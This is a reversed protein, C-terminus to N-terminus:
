LLQQNKRNCKITLERSSINRVVDLDIICNVSLTDRDVYGIYRVRDPNVVKGRWVKTVNPVDRLGDFIDFLNCGRDVATRIRREISRNVREFLDQDRNNNPFYDIKTFLSDIFDIYHPDSYQVDIPGIDTMIDVGYVNESNNRRPNLDSKINEIMVQETVQVLPNNHSKSM